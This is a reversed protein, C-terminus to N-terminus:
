FTCASFILKFFIAKFTIELGYDKSLSHILISIYWLQLYIKSLRFLFKSTLTDSRVCFFKDLEKHIEFKLRIISEIQNPTDLFYQPLQCSQLACVVKRSYYNTKWIALLTNLILSFFCQGVLIWIWDFFADSKKLM